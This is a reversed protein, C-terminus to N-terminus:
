AADELVYDLHQYRMYLNGIRLDEAAWGTIQISAQKWVLPKDWRVRRQRFTSTAGLRDAEILLGGQGYRAGGGFIAQGFIAAPNYLDLQTAFDSIAYAVLPQPYPIQAALLMEVVKNMRMDGSDPLLSTAYLVQMPLTLEEYVSGLSPRADSRYLKTGGGAVFTMAFTSRWPQTMSAACTHPGSWIQRTLDYWWEQTTPSVEGTDVGGQFALNPAMANETTIRITDDGSSACMRSPVVSYLFPVTVGRGADGIPDSVKGDFGIIRLGQPSVFALGKLCSACTLPAETGTAVPLANMSLNSTALDGSIQQMKAAGEFAILSQVIGGLLTSLQLPAIMTVALGDGTTLAQVVGLNSIRCAFGSDSFPIGDVGCAFYSRGNYQAAALPVSPLRNRDTDGAGWLPVGTVTLVANDITAHAQVSLTVTAGDFRVGTVAHSGVAMQSLTIATPSVLAAVVTGYPIGLGTVAQGVAVGTTSALNDLLTSLAHTDGTTLLAFAASTAITTGASIGPGSVLMGPLLGAILPNGRLTVSLNTMDAIITRPVPAAGGVIRVSLTDAAATAYDSMTITTGTFNISVTASATAAPSIDVATPSVLATIVAGAPIGVGFVLQGVSLGDAGAMATLHTNSNTTGTLTRNDTASSVVTTGVPINTGSILMGPQVGLISPNGTLINGLALGTQTNAITDELFGSVDLWGFKFAGGPFGPHCVVIRGGVQAMIPPTWLGSSPPSVPTNAALVGNIPIFEGTALNLCYPEDHGPNRFSAIMGYAIDGVVLEASVFGPSSFASEFDAIEVAGPRPVWVGGTSPDPVLNSLALMSGPTTNTADVVDTVGLPVHRLPTGPLRAM